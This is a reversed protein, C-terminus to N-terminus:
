IYIEPSSQLNPTHEAYLVLFWGEDPWGEEQEFMFDPEALNQVWYLLLLDNFESEPDYIVRAHQLFGILDSVLDVRFAEAKNDFTDFWTKCSSELPELSRGSGVWGHRLIENHLAICRGVNM